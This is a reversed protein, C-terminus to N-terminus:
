REAESLLNFTLKLKVQARDYLRKAKSRSICLTDAILTFSKNNRKMIIVRKEDPELQLELIKDILLSLGSLLERHEPSYEQLLPEQDDWHDHM